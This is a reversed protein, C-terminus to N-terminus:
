GYERCATCAIATGIADIQDGDAAELGSPGAESSVQRYVQILYRPCPRMALVDALQSSASILRPRFLVM